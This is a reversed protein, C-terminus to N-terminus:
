LMCIWADITCKGPVPTPTIGMRAAAPCKSSKEDAAALAPIFGAGVTSTHLANIILSNGVCNVQLKVIFQFRGRVGALGCGAFSWQPNVLSQSRGRFMGVWVRCIVMTSLTPQQNGTDNTCFGDAPFVICLSMKQRDSAVSYGWCLRHWLPVSLYRSFFFVFFYAFFKTMGFLFLVKAGAFLGIFM